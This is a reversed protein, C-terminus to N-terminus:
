FGRMQLMVERHGPYRMTKERMRPMSGSPRSCVTPTFAELTGVRFDILEPESLMLVVTNGDDVMRAPRVSRSCM